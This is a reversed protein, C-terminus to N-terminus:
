ATGPLVPHVCVGAELPGPVTVKLVLVSYPYATAPCATLGSIQLCSAMRLQLESSSGATPVRDIRLGNSVSQVFTYSHLAPCYAQELREDTDLVVLPNGTMATAQFALCASGFWDIRSVAWNATRPFVVEATSQRWVIDLPPVAISVGAFTVRRWAPPVKPAPGDALVVKRPSSTLTDLIRQTM